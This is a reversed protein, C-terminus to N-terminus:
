SPMPKAFSVPVETCGYGTDIVWVAGARYFTAWGDWGVQMSWTGSVDMWVRYDQHDAVFSWGAPFTVRGGDIDRPGRSRPAKVPQTTPGGWYHAAFAQGSEPQRSM